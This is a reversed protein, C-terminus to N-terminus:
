APLLFSPTLFDPPQGISSTLSCGILPVYAPIQKLLATAEAIQPLEMQAVTCKACLDNLLLKPAPEGKADSPTHGAVEVKQLAQQGVIYYLTDGEVVESLLLQSSYGLAAAQFSAEDIISLKLPEGKCEEIFHSLRAEQANMAWEIEIIHLQQVVWHGGVWQVAILLLLLYSMPERMIM